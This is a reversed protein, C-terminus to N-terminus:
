KRVWLRWRVNPTLECQYDRQNPNQGIYDAAAFYCEQQTAYDGIIKWHLIRPDANATSAAGIMLACGALSAALVRTKKM